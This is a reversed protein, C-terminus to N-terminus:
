FTLMEYTLTDSPIEVVCGHVPDPPLLTRKFTWDSMIKHESLCVSISGRDISELSVFSGRESYGRFIALGARSTGTLTGALM